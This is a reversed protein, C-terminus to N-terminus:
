AAKAFRMRSRDSLKVEDETFERRMLSMDEPLYLYSGDYLKTGPSYSLGIAAAMKKHVSTLMESQLGQANTMAAGPVLALASHPLYRPHDASYQPGAAMTFTSDFCTIPLSVELAEPDDFRLRSEAERHIEQRLQQIDPFIMSHEALAAHVETIQQWSQRRATDHDSSTYDDPQLLVLCTDINMASFQEVYKRLVESIEAQIEAFNEGTALPINGYM